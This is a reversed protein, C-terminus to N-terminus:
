NYIYDPYLYHAIYSSQIDMVQPFDSFDLDKSDMNLSDMFDINQHKCTNNELHNSCETKLKDQPKLPPQYHDIEIPINTGTDNRIINFLKKVTKSPQNNFGEKKIEMSEIIDSKIKNDKKTKTLLKM